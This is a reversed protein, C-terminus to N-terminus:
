NKSTNIRLWLAYLGIILIYSIYNVTDHLTYQLGPIHNHYLLLLAIRFINICQIGAIGICIWYLKNKGKTGLILSFYAVMVELGLCGHLIRVYYSNDITLINSSFLAVQFDFLKLLGYTSYTLIAQLINILNYQIFFPYHLSGGPLSLGIYCYLLIKLLFFWTLIRLVDRLFPNKILSTFDVLPM